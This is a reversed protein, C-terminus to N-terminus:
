VGFCSSGSTNRLPSRTFTSTPAWTSPYMPSVARVTSTPPVMLYVMSLSATSSARSMAMPSSWGLAGRFRMPPAMSCVMSDKPNLGM